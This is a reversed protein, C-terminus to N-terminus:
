RSASARLGHPSARTRPSARSPASPGTATPRRTACCRACESRRSHTPSSTSRGEIANPSAHHDVLTTTGSLLAEMGGVLASARVSDEDLARDLRWWIRQLIQLFSEPPALAYPMGRALASYLHTHACVNGPVVLCGSCDRRAGGAETVIRGDRVHVDFRDIGVPELSTVVTAGTLIV